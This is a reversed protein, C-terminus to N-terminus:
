RYATLTPMQMVGLESKAAASVTVSYTCVISQGPLLPTESRYGNTYPIYFLQLGEHTGEAFDVSAGTSANVSQLNSISGGAPAYIYLFPEMDGSEYDDFKGMIYTGAQEIEAPDVTNAFTTTVSYTTTGDANKVAAGVQTNVDLYWGLKSPIWISAFTGVKPNTEDSNLAGSIHLSEIQAQEEANTFYLMVERTETGALMTQAFSLLTKANLSGLLKAFTQKAADAFLSDILEYNESSATERSCYKWYLDHQLMKTANTGDLESGDSLTIGGTIKLMSQIMSPTISIIGDISNQTETTYASAWVSATREFNPDVGFDRSITLFEDSFIELEDATPAVDDPTNDAFMEYPTGFSGLSIKGDNIDLSAVAGPFGGSARIEASNQATILYARQGGDGLALKIVPFYQVAEQYTNNLDVVKAKASGLMDELQAINMAPVQAIKQACANMAPAIEEAASLMVSVTDVDIAGSEDIISDLSANAFTATLPILIDSAASNLINILEKANTVDSGVYPVVSAVSWLPSSMEQQMHASTAAINNAYTAAEQYQGSTISTKINAIDQMVLSADHKLTKASDYLCYGTVGIAVLFALVVALIIGKKKRKKRPVVFSQATTDTKVSQGSNSQGSNIARRTTSRAAPNAVSSAAAPRPQSTSRSANRASSAGRASQPTQQPQTRQLRQTQQPQSVHPQPVHPQHTQQPTQQKPQRPQPSQNLTQRSTQKAHKGYINESDHM